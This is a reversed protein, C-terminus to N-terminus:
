TKRHHALLRRIADALPGPAIKEHLEQFARLAGDDLPVVDKAHATKTQSQLMGAQVRVVVENLNRGSDALARIVTPALQRLKAAHAASPVALTIQQRDIRAVKCAGALAPPLTKRVAQEASLLMGATSLVTAGQGDQGLWDFATRGATSSPVKAASRAPPRRM